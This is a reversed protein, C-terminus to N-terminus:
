SRGQGRQDESLARRLLARAHSLRSRVTGVPIGLVQAATQYDMGEADVLLVAARMPPPLSALATALDLRQAAVEGPDPMPDPIERALGLSLQHGRKRHRRLQDMCENYVIRHLWSGFASRGEFGRLSRFANLYAEQLVDDMRQPDELLRYALARLAQDHLGILQVFADLDGARARALLGAEVV